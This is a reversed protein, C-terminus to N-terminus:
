QLNQFVGESTFPLIPAIVTTFDLIVTYLTNYATAKDKDHEKKWFRDKNRRIYWNNLTEIFDEILKCATQTNYADMQEKFERVFINLKSLIYIDMLNQSTYNKQATIGDANAYMAFFNYANWIPKVVLRLVEAIGDATKPIFLDGGNVVPSSVVFYRMADSGITNFVELPDPYNRLRKSLKQGNEDLIVGHCICNKFPERGFLATGLVMLTYFWGRTQATYEVIFDAPFNSPTPLSRKKSATFDQPNKAYREDSFPFHTSAFPMSGSEFWCDLVDEVRTISNHSFRKGFVDIEGNDRTIEFGNNQIITRCEDFNYESCLIYGVGEKPYHMILPYKSIYDHVINADNLVKKILQKDGVVRIFAENCKLEDIFPRHLDKIEGEKKGFFKELEAISGFVFRGGSASKWVPVPCGWFRNRSISWDRANELWKGFIGDKVHSPVWNIGQPKQLEYYNQNQYDKNKSVKPSRYGTKVLEFGFKKLIQQSKLNDHTTCAILKNCGLRGFAISILVEIVESGYGKNWFKDDILYSLEIDDTTANSGSPLHFALGATGVFNGTEKEFLAYRPLGFEAQKKHFQIENLVQEKTPFQNELHYYFERVKPNNYLTHLLDLHSENAQEARLKTFPEEKVVGSNLECMDDKFDTVRVYWSPMAKYILPTDTRWCHPYNHLYQETKLWSNQKKLFKIIDDNCDFVQRGKLSLVGTELVFWNRELGNREYIKKGKYVFGIKELARHSQANDERAYASISNIGYTQILTKALEVAYGKGWFKKHFTFGIQKEDSELTVNDIGALGIFENTSKEFVMLRSHGYKKQLAIYLDLEQQIEEDNLIGRYFKRADHDQYLGKVDNFSEQTIEKTYLRETAVNTAYHREVKNTTDDIDFIEGTYKGKEDVPCVLPIGLKKCLEFDDEGFGPAIHVIGTGDETTVFAGHSVKFASTHNKFYPFLPQYSAGILAEGKFTQLLSSTDDKFNKAVLNSALIIKEGNYEVVSYEVESNIALMLNAPLTWPTTTWVLARCGAFQDDLIEFKVTVAKSTKERYANDMRTEFNSLPTEAKWSYPMVRYDEYILGKEHLKKFAWIVSEMYSTDMTKYDNKFDVWRGAKQIYNQWEDTYKMVSDRCKENFAEIGYQTIALRGQIGLQKEVEMEAPLGHCDWGFRRPTKRGNMTQYRAYIDKIFSTLLHGYHPLGNAFPPGDYFIFENKKNELKYSCNEHIKTKSAKPHHNSKEVFTFGMKQLVTQSVLNSSLTYGYIEKLKLENFAISILVNAAEKAYGKGWFEEEILYSIEIKGSQLDSQNPDFFSLGATGVFSGTTKEFLAFRPLGLEAQKKYFQIESLVQEKTPFQNELYSYFERVKKNNYLKHLFDLHKEEAQEARLHVFEVNGVEEVSREFIRNEEWFKAIEQELKPFNNETFLKYPM